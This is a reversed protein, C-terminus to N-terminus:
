ASELCLFLGLYYMAVFPYDYLPNGSMGYMLFFLQLFLGLAIASNQEIDNSKKLNNLLSKVATFLSSLIASIYTILGILGTECLVQLYVNHVEYTVTPSSSLVGVTHGRYTGWGIGTLPKTSYLRLALDYLPKRGSMTEDERSIKSRFSEIADQIFEVRQYLLLGIFTFISVAIIGAVLKEIHIEIVGDKKTALTFLLWIMIASLGASIAFGRKQIIIFSVAFVTIVILDIIYQRRKKIRADSLYAAVGHVIFCGAAGLSPFIGGTSAIGLKYTKAGSTYIGILTERFINTAKDLIVTLSVFLGCWFLVKFLVKKNEKSPKITICLIFLFGYVLLDRVAKLRNASDNIIGVVIWAYFVLWCSYAKFSITKVTLVYVIALGGLCAIAFWVGGLKLSPKVNVWICEFLPWVGLLAVVIKEIYDIYDINDANKLYKSHM